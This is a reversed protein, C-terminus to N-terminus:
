DYRPYTALEAILHNWDRVLTTEGSTTPFTATFISEDESLVGNGHLLPEASHLTDKILVRIHKGPKTGGIRLRSSNSSLDIQYRPSSESM